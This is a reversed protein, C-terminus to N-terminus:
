SIAALIDYYLRETAEDSDKNLYYYEGGSVIMIYQARCDALNMYAKGINDYMDFIGKRKSKASLGWRKMSIQLPENNLVVSADMLNIKKPYTDKVTLVTGSIEFKAPVTLDVVFFIGLGTLAIIAVTIVIAIFKKDKNSMSTM